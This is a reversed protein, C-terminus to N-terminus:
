AKDILYLMIDGVNTGTNDMKILSRGLKKFFNYSDFRKLYKKINLQKSKILTFSSHDIIAGASQQIFDRGDTAIAAMTWEGPWSTTHTLSSLVYHQNRGGLGHKAPLTPTTEGGLIIINRATFFEHQIKHAIQQAAQQTDGILKDTLIHPRLGLQRARRAMARLAILNDAIIYNSVNSLRRPTDPVRAKLGAQVLDIINVPATQWLHYKKLIQRADRWSTLDPVTMGSAITSLDNGVVDSIILSIIRAPAFFEALQGGKILSLHKRITNIEQINAGCAILQQTIQQKDKLTIGPHPYPMLSSGGGSILCLVIDNKNIMFKKRLELMQKVGKLGHSDPTPHNARNIKIRRVHYHSDVCNVIGATINKPGIIKEVTEAMQGVAKGGGIVFIRGVSGLNFKKNKVRLIRNRQDFKLLQPLTQQPMVAQIGAQAISLLQQRPPTVALFRLNKIM